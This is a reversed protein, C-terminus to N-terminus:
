GNENKWLSFHSICMLAHICMYVCFFVVAGCAPDSVCMNLQNERREITNREERQRIDKKIIKDNKRVIEFEREIAKETYKEEREGQRKDESEWRPM